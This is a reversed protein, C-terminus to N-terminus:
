RRFVMLWRWFNLLGALSAAVYTWAAAKLIKDAAPIQDEQLYSSKLIPMAKNFSADLEVPLTMLQVVLAFGMILFAGTINLLAISPAHTLLAMIPATFLLLSGVRGAWVSAQALRSRLMFLPERAAHQLAHGCEHTAVTIATLTKADFKDTSLRVTESDPDYHDGLETMEVKVHQLDFKDLLHRALEGGTGPFNSEDQRNYQALVHKVWYQPLYVFAVIILIIILYHV